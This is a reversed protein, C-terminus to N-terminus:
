PTDPGQPDGAEKRLTELLAQKHSLTERLRESFTLERLTLARYIEILRRMARPVGDTFRTVMRGVSIRRLAKAISAEPGPDQREDSKRSAGEIQELGRRNYEAKDQYLQFSTDSSRSAHFIRIRTGDRV